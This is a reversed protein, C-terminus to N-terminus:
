FAISTACCVQLEQEVQAARAQLQLELQKQETQIEQRVAAVAAQKDVDRLLLQEVAAAAALLMKGTLM